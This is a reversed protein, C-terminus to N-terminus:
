ILIKSFISKIQRNLKRSVPIAINNINLILEFRQAIKNIRAVYKKNVLYSRHCRIFESNQKLVKETKKMTTRLIKSSLLDNNDLYHIVIYNEMAEIYVLQTSEINVNNDPNDAQLTIQQGKPNEYVLLNQEDIHKKLRLNQYVM